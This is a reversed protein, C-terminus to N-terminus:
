KTRVIVYDSLSSAASWTRFLDQRHHKLLLSLEYQIISSKNAHKHQVDLDWSVRMKNSDKEKEGGFYFESIPTITQDSSSEHSWM